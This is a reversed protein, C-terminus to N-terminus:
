GGMTGSPRSRHLSLSWSGHSRVSGERPTTGPSTRSCDANHRVHVGVVRLAYRLVPVLDHHDTGAEAPEEPGLGQSPGVDVHRHDRPRAVVEELRQEVLDRGADEGLALDGRRRALDQGVLAVGLHHQALDRVDVQLGARDGVVDEAPLGHRRVVRQDHRGAGALGVEAVVLEGLERGPHLADVVGELQTAADETGELHGLEAGGLALVDVVQQGEHDHTGSRGAHLHGALDGLEGPVRQVAVEAVDVGPVRPHDEISAAECTSGGNPAFSPSFVLSARASRPTSTCSPAM